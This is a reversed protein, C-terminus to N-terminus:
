FLLRNRGGQKAKYLLVDALKIDDNINSKDEVKVIGGSVSANVTENTSDTKFEFGIKNIGDSEDKFKSLADEIKLGPCFIVFEEGGWRAVIDSNRFLSKLKKALEQLALDGTVHGYTDNVSKFKDIDILFLCGDKTKSEGVMDFFGNRNLVGTLKDTYALKKIEIIEKDQLKRDGRYHEILKGAAAHSIREEELANRLVRNEAESAQLALRLMEVKVNDPAQEPQIDEQEYPVDGPFEIHKRWGERIAM